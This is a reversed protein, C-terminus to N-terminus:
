VRLRGGIEGSVTPCPQWPRRSRSKHMSLTDAAQRPPYKKLSELHEGIFPAGANPAWLKSAFFKRGIYGWEESEPDMKEMPDMRLNFLYPISPYSKEYVLQREEQRRHADELQKGPDGDPRNRRLLLAGYPGVERDKREV